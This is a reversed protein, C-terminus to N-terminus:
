CPRPRAPSAPCTTTNPWGSAGTAWANPTSRWALTNHMAEAADSGEAIPSLDLLSYPIM